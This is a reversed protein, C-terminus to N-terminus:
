CFTNAGGDIYEGGIADPTNHCFKSAGANQM